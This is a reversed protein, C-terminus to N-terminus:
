SNKLSKLSLLLKLFAMKFMEQPLYDHSYLVNQMLYARANLEDNMNNAVFDIYSYLLIYNPLGQAKQTMLFNNANNIDNVSKLHDLRLILSLEGIISFSCDISKTRFIFNSIKDSIRSICGDNYNPDKFLNVRSIYDTEWKQPLNQILRIKNIYFDILLSQHHNLRLKKMDLLNKMAADYNKKEEFLQLEILKETFKIKDNNINENQLSIGFTILILIIIFGIVLKYKKKVWQTISDLFSSGFVSMICFIM